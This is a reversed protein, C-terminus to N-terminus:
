CDDRHGHHGELRPYPPPNGYKSEFWQDWGARAIELHDAWEAHLSIAWRIADRDDATPDFGFLTRVHDAPDGGHRAALEALLYIQGDSLDAACTPQKAKARVLPLSVDRDLAQNSAKPPKRAKTAMIIVRQSETAEEGEAM